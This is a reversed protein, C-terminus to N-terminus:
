EPRGQAGQRAYEAAFEQRAVDQLDVDAGAGRAAHVQVDRPAAQDAGGAAHEADHGRVLREVAQGAAAGRLQRSDRAIEGLELYGGPPAPQARFIEPQVDDVDATLHQGWAQGLSGAVHETYGIDPIQEGHGLDDRNEPARAGLTVQM